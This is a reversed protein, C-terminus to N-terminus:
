RPLPNPFKVENENVSFVGRLYRQNGQKRSSMGIWARDPRFVLAWDDDEASPTDTGTIGLHVRVGNEDSMGLFPKDWPSLGFDMRTTGDNGRFIVFPFAGMVGFAARQKLPDDLMFSHEGKEGPVYESGLFALVTHGQKNIGWVSIPKGTDDVLEFSHARLVNQARDQTSSRTLRAGVVGGAFGALLSAAIVLTQKM